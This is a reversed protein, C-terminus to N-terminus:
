AARAHVEDEIVQVTTAAPVGTAFPRHKIRTDLRSEPVAQVVDNRGPRDRCYWATGALVLAFLGFSAVVFGLFAIEFIPM